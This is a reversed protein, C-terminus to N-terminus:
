HMINVLDLGITQGSMSPSGIALMAADVVDPLEIPRQFRTAAVQREVEDQGRNTWWRTLVLAPAIANVRVQPALAVALSKTLHVVGSKSVSYPISSGRAAFASISAINVIVGQGDGHERMWMGAQRSVFFVGKLNVDFIEDWVEETVAALDAFDIFHTTGAANVLIDLRGHQGLAAEVLSDCDAVRSVDAQHVSALVGCGTLEAATADADQRSRAYSLAVHAGRQALATSIARGMGTGGGTVLAVRGHLDLSVFV